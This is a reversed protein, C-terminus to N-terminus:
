PVVAEILLRARAGRVVMNGGAPDAQTTPDVISLLGPEIGRAILADRLWNARADRLSSNLADGGPMDNFGSVEGRVSKGAIRALASARTVAAAIEGVRATADPMTEVDRVFRVEIDEVESVLAELAARAEAVADIAPGVEFAVAKVGPVWAARMTAGDIWEQSATGALVLQGERVSVVVTPPVELLRRARRVVVADDSSVYGETDIWRQADGLGAAALVPAIPEADADLLGRVRLSRWTSDEISALVFGPHADLASRLSEVRQQWREQRAFYAGVAVLGALLLVLAPWRSAPGADGSTPAAERAFADADLAVHPIAAATMLGSEGSAAHIEELRQVLLDRLADPPVGHIFVAISARPGDTLWLLHDGVRAEELAGRASGVSDRVFQGIATLMGAIADADLEAVGPASTRQLVLGSDREILFVHDIRYRLTHKLVVHAFPVGSRWAEIRWRLGRPTFSHELASNIDGMLSRLAEAISKRILPGIVPFLADVIPSSNQRVAQGLAQAVPAALADGMAAPPAARVLVPLHAALGARARDLDDIRSEARALAEREEALLLERLRDYDSM